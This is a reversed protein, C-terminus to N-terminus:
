GGDDMNVASNIYRYTTSPTLGSLTARYAYPIRYNNTPTAGQMYIPLISETLMPGSPTTATAQPVSGDTKYKIDNGSKNYPFIKFYYSTQGNLNIFSHLQIGSNINQVLIDNPEIVGNVPPIISNFGVSSGKILYGNAAPLADVWSTTIQSYSISTAGFSTAHNTPTTAGVTVSGNLTVTKSDAGTSIIYVLENNYVGLPLNAKLRVYINLNNITGNTPNLAILDSPTFNPTNTISIEYNTSPTVFVDSTLNIGNVTFSKTASPGQGIVYSFDNINTPTCTLSPTQKLDIFIVNTTGGTPNVTSSTGWIGNSSTRSSAITGDSLKREQLLRVGNSNMNPIIGGWSGTVGAVHDSYFPAYSTLLAYNIGTVEISSGYLPRG